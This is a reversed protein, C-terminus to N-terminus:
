MRALRPRVLLITGAALTLLTMVVLGWESVTPVAPDIEREIIGIGLHEPSTTDNWTGQAYPGSVPHGIISWMQGVDEEMGSSQNPEGSSWNTYGFSDGNSWGWGCTPEPTCPLQQLGIWINDPNNGFQQLIWANEAADNIAVLHAGHKTAWVEAQAWTLGTPTLDYWHATSPNYTWDALVPACAALTILLTLMLKRFSM